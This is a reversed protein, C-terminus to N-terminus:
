SSGGVGWSQTVVKLAEKYFYEILQLLYLNKALHSCSLFCLDKHHKLSGKLFKLSYM